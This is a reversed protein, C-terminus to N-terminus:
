VAVSLECNGDVAVSISIFYIKRKQRTRCTPNLQKVGQSDVAEWHSDTQLLTLLRRRVGSLM